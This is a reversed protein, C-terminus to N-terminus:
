GWCWCRTKSSPPRVDHGISALSTGCAPIFLLEPGLYKGLGVPGWLISFGNQSAWDDWKALEGKDRTYSSFLRDLTEADVKEHACNFAKLQRRHNFWGGLLCLVGLAVFIWALVWATKHVREAFGGAYSM